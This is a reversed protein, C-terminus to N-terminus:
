LIEGEIWENFTKYKEKDFEYEFESDILKQWIKAYVSVNANGNLYASYLDLSGGNLINGIFHVRVGSTMAELLVCPMTDLQKPVYYYFDTIENFFDLKNIFDIGLEYTTNYKSWCSKYTRLEEKEYEDYIQKNIYFGVIPKVNEPIKKSSFLLSALPVYYKQKGTVYETWGLSATKFPYAKDLEKTLFIYKENYLPKNVLKRWMRLEKRFCFIIRHYQDHDIENIDNSSCIDIVESFLDHIPQVIHYSSTYPEYVLLYKKM